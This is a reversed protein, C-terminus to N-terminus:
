DITSTLTIDSAFQTTLRTGSPLSAPDTVAQGDVRTITYGRRLTAEPSLVALIDAMSTLRQKERALANAALTTLMQGDSDTRRRERDITARAAEGTLTSLSMLQQKARQVDARALAPLTGAYYSLQEKSAALIEKAADLIAKGTDAVAIYAEAMRGILVQAAATPTKVSTNAVYDLVNIDRDHGIGVIIPLPFQAVNAALDYDDFWTLDTTAGGGRIIVVCDYSDVDQMIADLAAIVAAATREGQMAAEFLTTTFRLRYPNRHLQKIFDGYGAAGRASIVAVRCPTDSWPLSRNLDYVGEQKLRAIIENRRRVLDGLTYEPNIDTITLSMGYLPHYVVNVRVMVKMDSALRSGTATAFATALRTYSSAWIMARCKAVPTGDTRKELLEMYCHGHVVRLDSTEGTVWVDSLGPTSAIAGALRAGLASLSLVESNAAM